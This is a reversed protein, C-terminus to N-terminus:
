FIPLYEYGDKIIAAHIILLSMTCQRFTNPLTVFSCDSTLFDSNPVINM